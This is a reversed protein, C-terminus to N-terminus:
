KDTKLHGVRKKTSWPIPAGIEEAYDPKPGNISALGGGPKEVGSRSPNFMDYEGYQKVTCSRVNNRGLDTVRTRKHQEYFDFTSTGLPDNVREIEGFKHVMRAPRKFIDSRV